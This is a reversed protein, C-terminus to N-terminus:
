TGTTCIYGRAPVITQFAVVPESGPPGNVTSRTFQAPQGVDSPVLPANSYYVQGNSITVPTADEPNTINCVVQVTDAVTVAGCYKGTENSRLLVPTNETIPDSPNNANTLTFITAPDPPPAPSGPPAPPAYVTTLTGNVVALTGMTSVFSTTTNSPINLPPPPPSPPPPSPPPPPTNPAASCLLLTWDALGCAHRLCCCGAFWTNYAGLFTVILQSPKMFRCRVAHEGQPLAVVSMNSSGPLTTTNSWLLPNFMAQAVLPDGQYVLGARTYTFATATAATPQDALMGWVLDNTTQKLGRTSSSAGSDPYRALRCFLGTQVSILVITQDLAVLKAGGPDSPDYAIYKEPATVGTGNGCYAYATTNDSRM